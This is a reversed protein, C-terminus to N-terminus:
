RDPHVGHFTALKELLQTACAIVPGALPDRAFGEASGAGVHLGSPTLFSAQIQGTEPPPPPSSTHPEIKAVMARSAELVADIPGDLTGDPRDWVMGSDSRNWYRATHDEYASVVDFGRPMTVEVVVGFVHKAQGDSPSVGLERLFHWAQAYTRSDSGPHSVLDLLLRQARDTDKTQLAEWAARFQARCGNAAGDRHCWSEWPLDGFILARM